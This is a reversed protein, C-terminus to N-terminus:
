FHHISNAKIQCALHEVHNIAKSKGLYFQARKLKVTENAKFSLHQALTGLLM